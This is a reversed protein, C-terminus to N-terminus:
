FYPIKNQKKFVEKYLQINNTSKGLRDFISHKMLIYTSNIILM